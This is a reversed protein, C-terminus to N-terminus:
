LNFESIDHNLFAKTHANPKQILSIKKSLIKLNPDKMSAEDIVEEHM